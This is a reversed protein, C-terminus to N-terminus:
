RVQMRRSATRPRWNIYLSQPMSAKIRRRRPSHLLAGPEVPRSAPVHRSGVAALGVRVCPGVHLAAARALPQLGEEIKAPISDGPKLVWEDFWAKPGDARLREALVHRRKDSGCRCRPPRQRGEIRCEGRSGQPISGANSCIKPRNREPGM